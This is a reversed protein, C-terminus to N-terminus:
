SLYRPKLFEFPDTLGNQRCVSSLSLLVMAYDYTYFSLFFLFFGKQWMQAEQKSVPIAVIGWIFRFIYDLALMM